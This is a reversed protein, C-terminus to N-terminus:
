ESSVPYDLGGIRVAGVGRGSCSGRGSGFQWAAAAQAPWWTHQLCCALPAHERSGAHPGRTATAITIPLATVPSSKEKKPWVLITARAMPKTGADTMAPKREHMPYLAHAAASGLAQM